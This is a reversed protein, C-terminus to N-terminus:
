KDASSRYSNSYDSDIYITYTTKIDKLMLYHQLPQNVSGLCTITILWLEQANLLVM